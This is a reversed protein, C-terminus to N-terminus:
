LFNAVNLSKSFYLAGIKGFFGLNRFNQSNKSNWDCEVAFKSCNLSFLNERESVRALMTKLALEIPLCRSFFAGM